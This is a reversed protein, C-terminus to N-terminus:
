LQDLNDINDMQEIVEYDKIVDYNELVEWDGQALVQNEQPARDIFKPVTVSLVIAAVAAAAAIYAPVLKGFWRRAKVASISDMVGNVTRAIEWQTPTYRPAAAILRSIEGLEKECDPCHKLHAAVDESVSPELEGYHYLVLLEEYDKCVTDKFMGEM